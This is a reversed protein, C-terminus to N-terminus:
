FVLSIATALPADGGLEDLHEAILLTHVSPVPSKLQVRAVLGFDDGNARLLWLLLDRYFVENCKPQGSIERVLGKHVCCRKHESGQSFVIDLLRRGWWVMLSPSWSSLDISNLTTSDM